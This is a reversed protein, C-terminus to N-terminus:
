DPPLLNFSEIIARPRVQGPTTSTDEIRVVTRTVVEGTIVYNTCYRYRPDNPAYGVQISNPAPRLSQGWAYIVYRSDELRLLSLLREPIRELAADSIGRHQQIPSQLNLFPSNVTLEPITLLDSIRGFRNNPRSDRSRNIADWLIYLQPSNPEIALDDVVPPSNTSLADDPLSNSAVLIGSLTASWAALNTQNIPMLGRTTEPHLAATFIDVLRWDNTPNSLRGGAWRVWQDEDPAESKLYITQWPTGRHVRGLWGINPYKTHPFDWDDSKRVLPDKLTRNFATQDMTPDKRPNGGWPKYRDNMKGLNSNTPVLYPPKVVQILNTPGRADLLDEIRYHVLPDNVQWTTYVYLKRTPSFPAQQVLGPTPLQSRQFRLPTLGFFLRFGDIGKDKDLGQATQDNWSRWDGAGLSQNGLSVQIQSIIGETPAMVTGGGVRNTEWMRGIASPEGVFSNDAILEKTIDVASDFGDLNVYDVIRNTSTDVLVYRLKNFVSFGWQPTPFGAFRDFGLNPVVPVFRPTPLSFYASNTFFLVNEKVPILMQGAYWGGPPINTPPVTSQVIKVFQYGTENTLVMTMRNDIELTLPRPFSQTYSNWAEVGFVNSIGLVWMMNTENVPSNTTARRFELKRTVQIYTQLSFENFNPYGKRAGIILPIGWVMDYPMLAQRDTSVRLDRNTANLVATGPEEEYGIIYIETGSNYNSFVPRFVTPYDPYLGVDNRASDYINAVMQLLQHVEQRYQNQPYIQINTVSILNFDNSRELFLREAVTMFFTTADWTTLSELNTYINDYNINILNTDSVPLTDTGLQSILKYFTVAENTDASTGAAKLRNVFGISTKNTDFLEFPTFYKNTTPAFPWSEGPNDGGFGQNDLNIIQFRNGGTQPPGNAYGDFRDLTLLNATPGFLDNATKQGITYDNNVRYRTIALADEFAVGQSAAGLNQDFSYSSWVNTNLDHLFAALNLEASGVGQNRYFGESTPGLKKAQNHLRNLDLMKGVPFVAYAYRYLFRADNTHSAGIRNMEGIWEPDGIVEERSPDFVGNRNLDLYFPFDLVGAANRRFVPPRPDLRLNLFANTDIDVNTSVLTDMKRLDNAQAIRALLEGLARQQGTNAAVEATTLSAASTVQSRERRAVLLFTVALFTIISLMILTIVLAVGRRAAPPLGMRGTIHRGLKTALNLNM